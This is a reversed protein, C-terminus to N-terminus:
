RPISSANFQELSEWIRRLGEKLAEEKATFTVRFWGIRDALFNSGRGVWVGNKQCLTAFEAERVIYKEVGKATSPIGDAPHNSDDIYRSLNVWLFIGANRDDSGTLPEEM